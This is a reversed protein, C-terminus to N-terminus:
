IRCVFVMVGDLVPKLKDSLYRSPKRGEEVASIAEELADVPVPTKGMMTGWFLTVYLAHLMVSRNYLFRQSSGFNDSAAAQKPAPAKGLIADVLPDEKESPAPASASGGAKAFIHKEDHQSSRSFCSQCEDFDDCDLCEYRPASPDIKTRCQDCNFTLSKSLSLHDNAWKIAV